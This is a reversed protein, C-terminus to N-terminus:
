FLMYDITYTKVLWVAVYLLGLMVWLDMFMGSHDDLEGRSELPLALLLMGISKHYLVKTILSESDFDVFKAV